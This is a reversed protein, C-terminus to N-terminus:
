PKKNTKLPRKPIRLPINPRPRSAAYRAAIEQSLHNLKEDEWARAARIRGHEIAEYVTPKMTMKGVIPLVDLAIFIATILRSSWDVATNEKAMKHLAQMQALISDANRRSANLQNAKSDLTKQLQAIHNNNTKIQQQNQTVSSDMLTKQRKLEKEKEAFVPGKGVKHTGNTGQAEGIMQDYAQQYQDRRQNSTAQLSQNAQRLRDIQVSETLQAIKAKSDIEAQLNIAMITATIEKHFIAMELPKSIVIAILTALILRSAVTALRVWSFEGERCTTM